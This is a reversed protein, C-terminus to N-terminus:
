LQYLSTKLQTWLWGLILGLFQLTGCPEHPAQGSGQVQTSATYTWYLVNHTKYPLLCIGYKLSSVRVIAHEIYFGFLRAMHVYWMPPIFLNRIEVYWCPCYCASHLLWVATSHPVKPFGFSQLLTMALSLHPFTLPSAFWISLADIAVQANKLNGTLLILIRYYWNELSDSVFCIHCQSLVLEGSDLFCLVHSM